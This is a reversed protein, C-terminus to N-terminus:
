LCFQPVTFVPNPNAWSDSFNTNWELVEYAIMSAGYYFVTAPQSTSELVSLGPQNPGWYVLCRQQTSVPPPNWSGYTFMGNWPENGCAVYGWFATSQEGQASSFYDPLACMYEFEGPMAGCEPACQIVKGSVPDSEYMQNDCTQNQLTYYLFTNNTAPSVNPLSASDMRCHAPFFSEQQFARVGASVSTLQPMPSSGESQGTVNFVATYTQNVQLPYTPQLPLCFPPPAFIPNPNAWSDAFSANYYSFSYTYSISQPDNIAITWPAVPPDHVITAVVRRSLVDSGTWVSCRRQATDNPCVVFSQFAFRSLEAYMATLLTDIEPNAMSSPVSASCSILNPIPDEVGESLEDGTALAAFDLESEADLTFSSSRGKGENSTVGMQQLVFNMGTNDTDNQATHLIGTNVPRNGASSSRLPLLIARHPFQYNGINGTSAGVVLTYDTSCALLPPLSPLSFSLSRLM